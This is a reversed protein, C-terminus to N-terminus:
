IVTLLQASATLVVLDCMRTLRRVLVAMKIMLDSMKPTLDSMKLMFDSMKITLDSELSVRLTAISFITDVKLMLAHM